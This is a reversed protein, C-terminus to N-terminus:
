RRSSSMQWEHRVTSLFGAVFPLTNKLVTYAFRPDLVIWFNHQLAIWLYHWVTKRVGVACYNIATFLAVNAKMYPFYRRFEPKLWDASEVVKIANTMAREMAPANNMTNAPHIRYLVTIVPLYGFQVETSLRIWAVWDESGSILRGEPFGGTKLMAERRALNASLCVFNQKLLEATLWGHHEPARGYGIYRGDADIYERDSYVFGVDPHQRLYEVENKIKDPLWIDDSDLFAIFEGRAEALGRNRAAGRETNAQRIYTIRGGFRAAVDPTSDTSGDDVVILEISPYTQNLVSEITYGLYEAQNYTAIVVSVLPFM